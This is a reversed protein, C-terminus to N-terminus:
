LWGTLVSFYKFFEFDGEAWTDGSDLYVRKGDICVDWEYVENQVCPSGPPPSFCKCLRLPDKQSKEEEIRISWKGTPKSPPTIALIAYIKRDFVIRQGAHLLTDQENNILM